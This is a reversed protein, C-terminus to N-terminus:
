ANQLQFANMADLLYANLLFELLMWITDQLQEAVEM